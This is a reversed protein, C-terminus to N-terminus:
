LNSWRQDLIDLFIRIQDDWFDWTHARPSIERYEYPIKRQALEAVFLRNGKVLGDEGGCAIYILPLQQGPQLKELLAFPDRDKAEPSGPAGVLKTFEKVRDPNTPAEHAISLAGSFSGLATYCNPYKLGLYTAGFGGMSLGAIARARPLPITRYHTDTYAVLEKSIFDEFRAKPEGASNLYFSKGGDPMVIIVNHHAAYGSLNTMYSWASQDDGYGHLLYLVPYRATSHEYDLPLLVAAKREEGMAESRISVTSITRAATGTKVDAAQTCAAAITSVVILCHLLTRM